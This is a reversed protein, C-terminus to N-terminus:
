CLCLSLSLRSFIILIISFVVIVSLGILLQKSSSKFKKLRTEHSNFSKEIDQQLNYVRNSLIKWTDGFEKENEQIFDNTVLKDPEAGILVTEKPLVASLLNFIIYAIFISTIIAILLVISYEGDSFSKIIYGDILIFVSICINMLNNAKNTVIDEVYHIDKLNKEAEEKIILVTEKNAKGLIEIDMIAFNILKIM